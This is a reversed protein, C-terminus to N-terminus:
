KKRLIRGSNFVALLTVGVDAFVAEWITAIGVSGLAIFFLKIVLALAINQTVIKKTAKSIKIAEYLAKPRDEVLVLDSAEIAADSGLGGMAVGIDAAAIVPTDNIGDGLFIVKGKAEAQIKELKELKQHPLLEGHWEDLELLEAVKETVAASDGSLLATHKIGIKKLSFVADRADQRIEDAILIYGAYIGDAALHILTGPGKDPKQLLSINEKEMLALNGALVRRGDVVASIGHGAIENYDSVFQEQYDFGHKERYHGLISKAIPHNSYLEAGAALNLLDEKTFNESPYLGTVKFVGQTLTGTKDFVVTDAGALADLYNAGKVLIGKRSAKGIGGFYSLPISIVLACPCSIVLLVLPRYLWDKWGQFNILQPFLLPPVLALLVAALVVLPTYVVSFRTIFQETPAKRESAEEVLHLIKSVSSDEFSKEVKITLLGQGNVSGSLVRDGKQVKVPLSEGTLASTDLFSTGEIVLGDLPLKEGAKVLIVQGPVILGPDVTELQGEDNLLNAYDAQIELLAQISRRSHNVAKDQLYEGVAYFFMVGAAEALQHIAIAGATALTMLFYEDFFRGNLINNVARYIVKYGVLLYATLLVAYEAIQYPTNHLRDNFIFGILFLIGSIIILTLRFPTYASDGQDSAKKADSSWPLLIVDPDTKAITSRVKELLSEPVELAPSAFNISTNELGEIKHLARELNTACTACDLGDLKFKQLRQNKM